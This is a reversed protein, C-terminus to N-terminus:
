PRFLYDANNPDAATADDPWYKVYTDIGSLLQSLRYIDVDDTTEYEKYMVIGISIAKREEPTPIRGGATMRRISALQEAVYELPREDPLRSRVAAVRQEALDLQEFFERRSNIADGFRGAM